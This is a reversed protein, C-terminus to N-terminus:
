FFLAVQVNVLNKIINVLHYLLYVVVFIGGLVLFLLPASLCSYILISTKFLHLDVSFVTGHLM